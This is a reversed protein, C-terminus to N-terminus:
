AGEYVLIFDVDAPYSNITLMYGEPAWTMYHLYFLTDGIYFAPIGHSDFDTKEAVQGEVEDAGQSYAKDIHITESAFYIPGMIVGQGGFTSGGTSGDSIAVDYKKSATDLYAFFRGDAELAAADAFVPLDVMHSTDIGPTGPNDPTDPNGPFAGPFIIRFGIMLILAIM